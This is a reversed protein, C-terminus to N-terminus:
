NVGLGRIVKGGRLPPKIQHLAPDAATKSAISKILPTLDKKVSDFIEALRATKKKPAGVRSLPLPLYLCLSTLM